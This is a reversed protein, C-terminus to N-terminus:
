KKVADTAERYTKHNTINVNFTVTWTEGDIETQYSNSGGWSGTTALETKVDKEWSDDAVQGKLPNKLGAISGSYHLNATITVTHKEKDVEQKSNDGLKDSYAIPNGSFTAYGSEWQKAVPDINWRRGIRPDYEWFLASYHNGVGAFENEKM